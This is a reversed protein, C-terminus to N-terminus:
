FKVKPSKDAGAEAQFMEKKHFGLMGAFINNPFTRVKVNYVKVADNYGIRATNIRNETGELQAQLDLFNQNAKLNPYNEMVVNIMMRAAGQAQASARQIEAMKEATLQDASVNTANKLASAASLAGSRAEAIGTFTSKEFDAAGKVTEVLNPILDARRQYQTQVTGWKSNVEEDLQVLGKQLNCAQCGGILIIAGLVLAVILGKKM